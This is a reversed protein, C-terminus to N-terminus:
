EKAEEPDKVGLDNAYLRKFRIRFLDQDKLKDQVAALISDSTQKDGTHVLMELSVVFERM